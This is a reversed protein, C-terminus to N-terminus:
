RAESSQSVAGGGAGRRARLPFLRKGRGACGRRITGGTLNVLGFQALADAEFEVPSVVPSWKVFQEGGGAFMASGDITEIAHRALIQALDARAVPVGGAFDGFEALAMGVREDHDQEAFRMKGGLVQWSRQLQLHGRLGHEGDQM